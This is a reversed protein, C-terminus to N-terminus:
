LMREGVAKLIDGSIQLNKTIDRLIRVYKRNKFKKVFMCM